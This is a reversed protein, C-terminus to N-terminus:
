PHQDFPAFFEGRTPIPSDTYWAWTALDELQTPIAGDLKMRLQRVQGPHGLLAALDIATRGQAKLTQRVARALAQQAAAAALRGADDLSTATRWRPRSSEWDSSEELLDRPIFRARTM